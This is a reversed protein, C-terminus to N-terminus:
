ITTPDEHPRLDIVVPPCTRWWPYGYGCAPPGVLARGYSWSSGCGPSWDSGCVSSWASACVGRDWGSWAWGWDPLCGREGDWRAASPTPLWSWDSATALAAVCLLAACRGVRDPIM